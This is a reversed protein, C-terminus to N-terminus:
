ITVEGAGDKDYSGSLQKTEERKRKSKSPVLLKGLLEDVTTLLYRELHTKAKPYQDAIWKRVEPTQEVVSELFDGIKKISEPDLTGNIQDTVGRIQAIVSQIDEIIPDISKQVENIVGTTKRAIELSENMKKETRRLYPWMVFGTWFIALLLATSGSIAWVYQVWMPLGTTAEVM